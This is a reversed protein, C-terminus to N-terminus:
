NLEFAVVISASITKQGAATTPGGQSSSLKVEFSTNAVPSSQYVPEPVEEIAYARGIEQNLAGALAQAKERAAKVALNRAQDRYKRLDSAEYEISNIRNGGAQILSELLSDLKSLNRVTISLTQEAVFGTLTRGKRFDFQPQLSFSITQVDKDDIGNEHITTLISRATADAAQKAARASVDQKQVGVEIVAWEPVVKVEATGMVRVVRPSLKDEAVMLGTFLVLAIAVKIPKM